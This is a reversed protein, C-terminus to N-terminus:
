AEAAKGGPFNGADGKPYSASNVGTCTCPLFRVGATWGTAISVWSDRSRFVCIYTATISFYPSLELM